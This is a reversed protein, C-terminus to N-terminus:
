SVLLIKVKALAEEDSLTEKRLVYLLMQRRQAAILRRQHARKECAVLECVYDWLERQAPNM